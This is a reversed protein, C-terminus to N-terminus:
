REWSTTTLPISSFMRMESNTDIRVGTEDPGVISFCKDENQLFLVVEKGYEISNQFEDPIHSELLVEPHYTRQCHSVLDNRPFQAVGFDVAASFIRAVKSCLDVTLRSCYFHTCKGAVALSRTTTTCLKGSSLTSTCRDGKVKKNKKFPQQPLTSIMSNRPNMPEVQTGPQASYRIRGSPTGWLSPTRLRCRSSQSQPLSTTRDKDYPSNVFDKM